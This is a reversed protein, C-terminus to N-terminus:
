QWKRRWGLARIGFGALALVIGLAGDSADYGTRGAVSCGGSSAPSCGTALGGPPTPDCTKQRDPPYIACVAAIDDPQLTRKLSGTEYSYYMVASPYPSHAIGLFHGVEHTVISVLDTQVGQDGVTFDNRASNIAMNAELIQGSDSCSVTTLALTSDINGGGTWGNDTCYVVNSNPGNPDYGSQACAVDRLQLLDISPPTGGGCDVGSWADFAQVIADTWQDATLVSTGAM